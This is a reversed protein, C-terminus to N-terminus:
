GKLGEALVYDSVIRGHEFAMPLEEIEAPGFWELQQVEAEQRKLDEDSGEPTVVFILAVAHWDREPYYETYYGFFRASAANLGTEEYLERRMAEEVGEGYEIHGGPICWHNYFPEHNRRELLIRGDRVVV